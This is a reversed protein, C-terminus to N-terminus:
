AASLRSMLITGVVCPVSWDSLLEFLWLSIVLVGLTWALYRVSRWFREHEGNSEVLRTMAMSPDIGDSKAHQSAKITRFLIESLILFISGVILPLSQLFLSGYGDIQIMLNYRKKM